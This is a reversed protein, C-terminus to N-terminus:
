ATLRTEATGALQAAVRPAEEVPLVGTTIRVHTTDPEAWTLPSGPCVGIDADALRRLALSENEVEVWLNLGDTGYTRLGHNATAAIMAERRLRYIERAKDVTQASEPNTLLRLLVGQLLLSEWGGAFRRQLEVKHMIDRPGGIAALRLDPGHSKSFSQLRVVQGPLWRALSTPPECSVAGCHDDEIVLVKTPRLLAALEEARRWTMSAGTPNQGRPQLLLVAPRTLLANTLSAPTVGEDDVSVSIAVGGHMEVLDVVGPVSPDEVLVRDGARLMASLIGDVGAYAGHVMTLRSPSLAPIWTERVVDELEPLISEIQYNPITAVEIGALADSINPLLTSDPMGNSLDLNYRGVIWTARMARDSSDIERSRIVITGNRGASRIIGERALLHWAESVTSASVHLQGALTRVTPLKTGSPLSSDAILDRLAAALGRPTRHAAAALIRAAVQEESLGAMVASYSDRRPIPLITREIICQSGASVPKVARRLVGNM